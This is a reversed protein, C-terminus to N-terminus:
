YCDFKHFTLLRYDQNQEFRGLPRGLKGKAGAEEYAQCCLWASGAPGMRGGAALDSAQVGFSTRRKSSSRGGGSPPPPSDHARAARPPRGPPDRPHPPAPHADAARWRAGRGLPGGVGRLAGRSVEVTRPTSCPERGACLHRTSPRSRLLAASRSDRFM